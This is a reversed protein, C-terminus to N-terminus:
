QDYGFRKPHVFAETEPPIENKGLWEQLELRHQSKPSVRQFTQIQWGSPSVSPQVVVYSDEEIPVRSQLLYELGHNPNPQWPLLLIDKHDQL